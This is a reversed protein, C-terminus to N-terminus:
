GPATILEGQYAFCRCSDDYVVRRYQSVADPRGMSLNLGFAVASPQQGLSTLADLWSQRTLARGAKEAAAEFLWVNDCLIAAPYPKQRATVAIGAERMVGFCREEAPMRPYGGDPVDFQPRWGIGTAGLPRINPLFGLLAELIYGSELAYRPHYQQRDADRLFLYSAEFAPVFLVHTIGKDKFSLVGLTAGLGPTQHQYEAAVSVGIKALEPKVVEEALRKMRPDITVVLGVRAGPDFYGQRQLEPVLIRWLRDDALTSPTRYWPSVEELFREDGNILPTTLLPTRRGAFCNALEAFRGLAVTESTIAAFVREDEVLHACAQAYGAGFVGTGVIVAEVKRGAIGGRRNLDDVLAQAQRKEDGYLFNPQQGAAEYFGAFQEDGGENVIFGIKVTTDTVGVENAAADDALDKPQSAEPSTGLYVVAFVAVAAAALGAVLRGSVRGSVM